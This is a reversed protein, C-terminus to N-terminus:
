HGKGGGGSSDRRKEHGANLSGGSRRMERNAALFSGPRRVGVCPLIPRERRCECPPLGYGGSIIRVGEARLSGFAVPVEGGM